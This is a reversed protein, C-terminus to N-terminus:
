IADGEKKNIEVIKNIEVVAQRLIKGKYIYGLKLTRIVYNEPLDPCCSTGGITARKLDFPKESDDILELDAALATDRIHEWMQRTQLFLASQRDQEAFRYLDEVCDIIDILADVLVTDEEQLKESIEELQLGFDKQRLNIKKLTDNIEFLQSAQDGSVNQVPDPDSPLNHKKWFHSIFKM